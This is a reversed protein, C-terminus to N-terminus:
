TDGRNKYPAHLSIAVFMSKDEKGKLTLVQVCLRKSYQATWGDVSELTKTVKTTHADEKQLKPSKYLIYCNGQNGESKTLAVGYGADTLSKQFAKGVWQVEQLFVIDYLTDVTDYSQYRINALVIEMRAAAWGKHTEGMINWSLARIEDPNRGKLCYLIHAHSTCTSLPCTYYVMLQTVAHGHM